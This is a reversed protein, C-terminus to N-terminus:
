NPVAPRPLLGAGEAIPKVAAEWEVAMIHVGAIGPIQKIEKIQEVCLEIGRAQWAAARAKKDEKPINAVAKDMESIYYNDVIMGPVKDRMYKAMGPSKFPGVGALIYVKEHLGMDVV